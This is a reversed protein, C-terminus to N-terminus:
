HTSFAMKFALHNDRDNSTFPVAYEIVDFCKRYKTTLEAFVDAVLKPDNKFCGCGFAGLILVDVGNMIALEFIRSFRSTYLLRLQEESINSTDRRVSSLNPAACTIVDVGWWQDEKLPEPLNSDTKFVKVAPTYICDDNYLTDKMYRHRKYFNHYMEDTTICQYLTSCRCISEEQANSGRKVGGGPNKASAFNLVCVKKGKKAYFESAELTRKDSVIVNGDKTDVIECNIVDDALFLRQNIISNNISTILEKNTGCKDITDKFIEIRRDRLYSM